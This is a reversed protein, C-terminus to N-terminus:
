QENTELIHKAEDVSNVITFVRNVKTIDFVLKVNPQLGVLIIKNVSSQTKQKMQVLLGIGSSDIHTTKSLDVIIDKNDPFSCFIAEKNNYVEAANLRGDIEYCAISENIDKPEIKMHYRFVM